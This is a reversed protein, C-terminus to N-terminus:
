MLHDASQSLRILFLEPREGVVAMAGVFKEGGAILRGETFRLLECM